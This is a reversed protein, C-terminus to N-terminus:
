PMLSLARGLLQSTIAQAAVASSVGFLRGLEPVAPLIMGQGLTMLMSPLYLFLVAQGWSSSGFRVFTEQPYRATLGVNPAADAAAVRVADLRARGPRSRTGMAPRCRPQRWGTVGCAHAARRVAAVM